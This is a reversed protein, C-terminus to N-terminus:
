IKLSDIDKIEFDLDKIIQITKRFSNIKFSYNSPKNYLLNNILNELNNVINQNM